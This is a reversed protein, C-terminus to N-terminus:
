DSWKNKEWKYSGKETWSSTVTKVQLMDYDKPNIKIYIDEKLVKSYATFLFYKRRKKKFTIKEIDYNFLKLKLFESFSNPNNVSLKFINSICSKFFSGSIYIVKGETNKAILFKRSILLENPKDHTYGIKMDKDSESKKKFKFDNKNIIVFFKLNDLYTTQKSQFAILELYEDNNPLLIANSYDINLRCDGYFDNNAIRYVFVNKLIKQKSVSDLEITSQSNASNSFLLIILLTFFSHKIQIM